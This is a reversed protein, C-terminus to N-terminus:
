QFSSMAENADAYVEFFNSFGVLDLTERISAPPNLLKVRKQAGADRDRAMARFEAWGEELDASAKGHFLQAVRHLASIGASSLFTLKSLDLLLNRIGSAYLEQAKAILQEYNSGDMRGEVHLITVPVIEHTQTVTIEM